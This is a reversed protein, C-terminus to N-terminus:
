QRHSRRRGLGNRRQDRQGRAATLLESRFSDALARTKFRAKRRQGAVRWWVIYSTTTKGRYVEIDWVRVDYSTAM